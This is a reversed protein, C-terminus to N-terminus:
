SEVSPLRTQTSSRPESNKRSDPVSRLTPATYPTRLGGSSLYAAWGSLTVKAISGSPVSLSTQATAPLWISM